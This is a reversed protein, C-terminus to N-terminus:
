EPKWRYANWAIMAAVVIQIIAVLILYASYATPDVLFTMPSVFSLAIFVIGVIINTWRNISYKLTISLVAMVPPILMVIALFLILGATIETGMAKGAVLDEIFGPLYLELSPTVVMVCFFVLWLLALKTKVNELIM